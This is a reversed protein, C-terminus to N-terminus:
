SHFLTQVHCMGKLCHLALLTLSDTEMTFLLRTARSFITIHSLHINPKYLPILPTLSRHQNASTPVHFTMNLLASNLPQNATEIAILSTSLKPVHFTM